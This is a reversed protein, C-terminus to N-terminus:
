ERLRRPFIGEVYLSKIRERKRYERAARRATWFSRFRYPRLLVNLSARTHIKSALSFFRLEREREREREREFSSIRRRSPTLRIQFPISSVLRFSAMLLGDGGTGERAATKERERERAEETTRADRSEAYIYGTGANHEGAKQSFISGTQLVFFARGVRGRIARVGEGRRAGGGRAGIGTERNERGKMRRATSLSMLVALLRNGARRSLRSPIRQFDHRRFLRGRSKLRALSLKEFIAGGSRDIARDLRARYDLPKGGAPFVRV